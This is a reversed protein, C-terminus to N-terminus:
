VILGHNFWINHFSRQIDLVVRGLPRSKHLRELKHKSSEHPAALGLQLFIADSFVCHETLDCASATMRSLVPFLQDRVDNDLSVDWDCAAREM